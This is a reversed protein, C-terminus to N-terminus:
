FILTLGATLVRDDYGYLPRNTDRREFRYNVNLALMQVPTYSVGVQWIALRDRREPAGAELPDFGTYDHHERSADLSVAIKSTPLWAM